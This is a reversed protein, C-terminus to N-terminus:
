QRVPTGFVMETISGLSTACHQEYQQPQEPNREPQDHNEPEDADTM